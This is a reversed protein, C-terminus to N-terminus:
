RCCPVAVNTTVSGVLAAGSIGSTVGLSLISIVGAVALRKATRM